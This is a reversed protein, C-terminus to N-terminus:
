KQPQLDEARKLVTDMFYEALELTTGERDHM